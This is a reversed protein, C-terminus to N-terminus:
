GFPNYTASETPPVLSRGPAPVPWVPAPAPVEDSPVADAPSEGTTAEAAQARAAEMEARTRRRRREKPESGPAAVPGDMAMRPPEGVQVSEAGLAAGVAAPAFQRLMEVPATLDVVTEGDPGEILVRYMNGM